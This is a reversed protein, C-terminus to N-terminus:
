ARAIAMQAIRDVLEDFSLGAQKAAMPLLSHSTFGPITNIELVHLRGGNDLLFDVRSLDRCGLVRHVELAQRRAEEATHDDLGHDFRYETAAQDSYKAEYDYFDAHPVVEILPLVEDGLIGVTLERGDVFKEVLARGYKDLLDGVAKERAAEDRCITIDVSSGSDVPKVVVPLDIETFWKRYTESAHFAEIIMWDPTLLGAQRILQKSAAKNMALKSSRPGSGTYPLERIECLQQVEGSEGFQGHLAIFVLELGDRDLARTDRPSIDAQTVRHGAQRLGESIAQGSMLSVDREASPGGMLVTIDLTRTSDDKDRSLRGDRATTEKM